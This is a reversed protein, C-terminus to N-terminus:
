LLFTIRFIYISLVLLILLNLTLRLFRSISHQKFLVAEFRLKLLPKSSTSLAFLCFNEKAYQLSRSENLLLTLYDIKEDDTFVQVTTLDCNIEMLKHIEHIIKNVFPNWWYAINIIELLLKKLSDKHLIHNLEHKLIYYVEQSTYTKNPIALIKHNIGFVFPHTIKDSQIIKINSKLNLANILRNFISLTQQNPLATLSILLLRQYFKFYTYILFGFKMLFIIFWTILIAFIIWKYNNNFISLTNQLFLPLSITIKLNLPAPLRFPFIFRFLVIFIVLLLRDIQCILINTTKVIYLLLKYILWSILLISILNLLLYAM